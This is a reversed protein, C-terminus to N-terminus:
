YSLLFRYNAVKNKDLFLLFTLSSDTSMHQQLVNDPVPSHVSVISNLFFQNIENDNLLRILLNRVDVRNQSFLTESNPLLLESKMNFHRASTFQLLSIGEFSGKSTAMSHTHSFNGVSLSTANRAKTTLPALSDCHTHLLNGLLSTLVHVKKKLLDTHVSCTKLFLGNSNVELHPATLFTNLHLCNQLFDSRM